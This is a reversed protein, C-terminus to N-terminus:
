HRNGNSYNNDANHYSPIPSPAQRKGFSQTNTVASRDLLMIVYGTPIFIKPNSNARRGLNLSYRGLASNLGMRTGQNLGEKIADGAYRNYTGDIYIGEMGDSDYAVLGTRVIEIEGFQNSLQITPISINARNSSVNVLGWLITNKPIWIEKWYTNELVRIQIKEGSRIKIKQDIVAKISKSLDVTMPTSSGVAENSPYAQMSQDTKVLAQEQNKTKQAEMYESNRNLKDKTGVNTSFALKKEIRKKTTKSSKVKSDKSQGPNKQYATANQYAEEHDELGQQYANEYPNGYDNEYPNTYAGTNNSLSDRLHHGVYYGTNELVNRTGDTKPYQAAVKSSSNKSRQNSSQGPNDKQHKYQNLDYHLAQRAITDKNIHVSLTDDVSINKGNYKGKTKQAAVKELQKQAKSALFNENPTSQLIQNKNLNFLDTGKSESSIFVLDSQLQNLMKSPKTTTSKQNILTSVGMAGRAYTSNSFTFIAFYLGWLLLPLAYWFFPLQGNKRKILNLSKNLGLSLKSQQQTNM